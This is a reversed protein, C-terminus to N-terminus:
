QAPKVHCLLGWNALTITAPQGVSGSTQNLVQPLNANTIIAVNGQKVRAVHTNACPLVCDGVNYGLEATKCYLLPPEIFINTGNGTINYDKFTVTTSYVTSVAWTAYYIEQYPTFSFNSFSKTVDELTTISNSSTVVYYLPKMYALSWPTANFSFSNSSANYCIYGTTNASLTLTVTSSITNVAGTGLAASNWSVHGGLLTVQLGSVSSVGFPTNTIASAGSSGAGVATNTPQMWFVRLDSVNMTSATTVVQAIRFRGTTFGTTNFSVANATQDYEIYCTTSATLNLSGNAVTNLTGSSTPFYGGYYAYTLGPTNANSQAFLASPALSANIANIAAEKQGQNQAIQALTTM